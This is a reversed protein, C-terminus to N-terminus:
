SNLLVVVTGGARVVSSVVGDVEYLGLHQRLMCSNVEILGQAPSPTRRGVDNMRGPPSWHDDVWTASQGSISRSGDLTM